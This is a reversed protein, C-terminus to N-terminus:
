ELGLEDPELEIIPRHTATASGPAGPLAALHRRIVKRRGDLLKYDVPSELSHEYTFGRADGVLASTPYTFIFLRHRAYFAFYDNLTHRSWSRTAEHAAAVDHSLNLMALDGDAAANIARFGDWDLGYALVGYASIVASAAYRGLAGFYVAAALDHSSPLPSCRPDDPHTHFLFLGPTEAVRAVLEGPISAFVTEGDRRDGAASPSAELLLVALERKAPGGPGWGVVGIYERPEALLPRVRALVPGWDLDPHNMAAARQSLYAATAGPDRRLTAWSAYEAWPRRPAPAPAPAPMAGSPGRRSASQSPANAPRLQPAAVRRMPRLAPAPMPAPRPPRIFPDPARLENDEAAFQIPNRVGRISQRGALEADVDTTADMDPTADMDTTAAADAAAPVILEGVEAISIETAHTFAHPPEGAGGRAGGAGGYMSHEALTLGSAHAYFGSHLEREGFPPAGARRGDDAGGIASTRHQHTLWVLMALAVVIVIVVVAAIAVESWM